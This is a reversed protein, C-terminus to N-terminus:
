VGNAAQVAQPSFPPLHNQRRGAPHPFPFPSHFGTGKLRFSPLVLTRANAGPPTPPPDSAEDRGQRVPWRPRSPRPRPPSTDRDCSWFPSFFVAPFVRGMDHNPSPPFLFTVLVRMTFPEPSVHTLCPPTVLKKKQGGGGQCPFFSPFIQQAFFATGVLCFGPAWVINATTADTAPLSLKRLSRL